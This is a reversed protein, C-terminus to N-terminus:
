AHAEEGVPRWGQDEWCYVGSRPFRRAQSHQELYNSYAEHASELDDHDSVVGHVECYVLYPKSHPPRNSSLNLQEVIRVDRAGCVSILWRYNEESLVDMLGHLGWRSLRSLVSPACDLIKMLKQPGCGIPNFVVVFNLRSALAARVEEEWNSKEEWDEQSADVVPLVLETKTEM